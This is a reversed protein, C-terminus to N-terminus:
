ASRLCHAPQTSRGDPDSRMATRRHRTTASKARVTEIQVHSESGTSPSPACYCPCYSCLPM